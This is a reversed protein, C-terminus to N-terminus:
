FLCALRLSASGAASTLSCGCGNVADRRARRGSRPCQSATCTSPTAALSHTETTRCVGAVAELASSRRVLHLEADHKNVAGSSQQWGCASTDAAIVRSPSASASRTTCALSLWNSATSTRWGAREGREVTSRRQCKAEKPM